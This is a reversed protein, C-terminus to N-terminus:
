DTPLSLSGSLCAFLFVFPLSTVPVFLILAYVSVFEVLLYPHAACNGRMLGPVIIM